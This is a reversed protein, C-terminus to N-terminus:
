FITEPFIWHDLWMEIGDGNGIETNVYGFYVGAEEIPIGNIAIGPTKISGLLPIGNMALYWSGDELLKISNGMTDLMFQSVVISICQSDSQNDYNLMHMGISSNLLIDKKIFTDYVKDYALITGPGLPDNPVIEVNSSSQIDFVGNLEACYGIDDDNM